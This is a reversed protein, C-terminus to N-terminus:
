RVAYKLSQSLVRHHHHVSRYSLKEVARGYYAQIIPASLKKLELSGFAPALHKKVIGQYSEITRLDCNTAVYGNVWMDFVQSVTLHGTPIPVGKDLSTLLENLRRQADSKKGRVTEYHRGPKGNSRAGTYIQIEWSGKSRSERISGRKGRLSEVTDVM